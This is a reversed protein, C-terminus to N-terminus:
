KSPGDKKKKTAAGKEKGVKRKNISGAKTATTLPMARAVPRNSTIFSCDPLPEERPEQRRSQSAFIADTGDAAVGIVRVGPLGYPDSRPPLTGAPLLPELKISRSQAWRAVGDRSTERLLLHLCFNPKEEVAVFGLSGGDDVFKLFCLEGNYMSRPPKEIVSVSLRQGDPQYGIAYDHDAYFYLTGGVFISSWGWCNVRADPHQVSTPESWVGKESTYVRASTVNGTAPASTSSVFVVCFLGGRCDCGSTTAPGLVAATFFESLKRPPSPRPLRHHEDTLPDWVIFDVVREDPPGQAQTMFLALGHRCDLLYWGPLDRRALRRSASDITAFRSTFPTCYRSHLFGFVHPTRHLARHRRHFAPDALIRRWRKCVLSARLLCAPDDTPLLLLIEGLLEDFLKAAPAM